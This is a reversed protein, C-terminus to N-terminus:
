FGTLVVAGVGGVVKMLIFAGVVTAVWVRAMKVVGTASEVGAGVEVELVTRVSVLVKLIAESVIDAM